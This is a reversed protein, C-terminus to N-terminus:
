TKEPSKGARSRKECQETKLKVSKPHKYDTREISYEARSQADGGPLNLMSEPSTSCPKRCLQARPLIHIHLGAPQLYERL